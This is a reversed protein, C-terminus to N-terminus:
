TAPTWWGGIDEDTALAWVALAATVVGAIVANAMPETIAAFGLIWPSIVLWVGLVAGAWEEWAKPQVLASVAVAAILIGVIVANWTATTQGQYQLVWPSILMWLGLVLSVPDQWHKVKRQIAM